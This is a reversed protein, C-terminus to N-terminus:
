RRAVRRAAEAQGWDSAAIAEEVSSV